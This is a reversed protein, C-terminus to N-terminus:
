KGLFYAPSLKSFSSLMDSALFTHQFLATHFNPLLCLDVLLHVPIDFRTSPKSFSSVTGSTCIRVSSRSSLKFFSLEALFSLRADPSDLPHRAFEHDVLCLIAPNFCEIAQAILSFSAERVDRMCFCCDPCQYFIDPRLYLM